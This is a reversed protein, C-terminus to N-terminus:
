FSNHGHAQLEGFIGFVRVYSSLRQDWSQSFDTLFLESKRFLLTRKLHLRTPPLFYNIRRWTFFRSCCHLLLRTTSHFRATCSYKGFIPCAQLSSAYFEVFCGANSDMCFLGHAPMTEKQDALFHSKQKLIEQEYPFPFRIVKSFKISPRLRNGVSHIRWHVFNGFILLLIVQLDVLVVENQLPWQTTSSKLCWKDYLWIKEIPRISETKNGTISNTLM